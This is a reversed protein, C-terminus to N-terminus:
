MKMKGDEKIGRESLWKRLTEIQTLQSFIIDSAIKKIEDNMGKSHEMISDDVAKQHHPIMMLVFSKDQENYDKEKAM